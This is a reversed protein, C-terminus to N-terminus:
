SWPVTGPAHIMNWELSADKGLFRTITTEGGSSRFSFIPPYRQFRCNWFFWKSMAFRKSFKLWECQQLIKYILSLIWYHKWMIGKWDRNSNKWHQVVSYQPFCDIKLCCVGVNNVTTKRRGKTNSSRIILTLWAHRCFWELVIVCVYAMYSSHIRVCVYVYLACINRYNYELLLHAAAFKFFTFTCSSIECCPFSSRWIGTM